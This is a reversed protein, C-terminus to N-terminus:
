VVNQGLNAANIAAYLDPSSHALAHPAEAYCVFITVVASEICRFMLIHCCFCIFFGLVGVVVSQAVVGTVVGVLLSVGLATMSLTPGVLCDNFLAAVFCRKTLEWTRKAAEIYSCGYVAVHVFAYVNFYELLQELCHLICEMICAVFNNDNERNWQAITRLLRLIAVLLSGFCISGLSTTTARKFSALTPNPPMAASGVFYWTAVLGSATVHGINITVQSAWFFILLFLCVLAGDGGSAEQKEARVSAPYAMASYFITFLGFVAMMGVNTFIMAKYRKTLDCSINLLLAAFPIRHRVMYLWVLQLLGCILLIVGMIVVKSAFAALAAGITLLGALVNAAIIAQRPFAMIAMLSLVSALISVATLAVLIGALQGETISDSSSTSSTSPSTTTTDNGWNLPRGEAAPTDFGASFNYTGWCVTMVVAAIFLIAAWADKYGQVVFKNNITANDCGKYLPVGQVMRPAGITSAENPNGYAPNQKSTEAYM